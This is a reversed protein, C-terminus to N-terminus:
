YLLSPFSPSRLRGAGLWPQEPPFCSERRSPRAEAWARLHSTSLPWTLHYCPASYHERPIPQSLPAQLAEWLILLTTNPPLIPWNLKWKRKILTNCTPPPYRFKIDRDPLLPFLGHNYEGRVGLCLDKTKLELIMRLITKKKWTRCPRQRSWWRRLELECKDATSWGQQSGKQNKGWPM